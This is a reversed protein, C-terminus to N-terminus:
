RSKRQDKRYVRHNPPNGHSLLSGTELYYVQREVSLQILSRRHLFFFSFLLGSGNNQRRMCMLRLGNLKYLKKQIPWLFVYKVQDPWGPIHTM